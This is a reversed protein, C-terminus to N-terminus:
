KAIDCWVVERTSCFDVEGDRYRFLRVPPKVYIFRVVSNTSPRIPPIKPNPPAKKASNKPATSWAILPLECTPERPHDANSAETTAIMPETTTRDLAFTPPAKINIAAIQPIM